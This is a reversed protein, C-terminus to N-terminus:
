LKVTKLAEIVKTRHIEWDMNIPITQGSERWLEEFDILGEMDSLESELSENLEKYKALEDESDSIEDSLDGKEKEVEEAVKNFFEQFDDSDQLIFEWEAPADSLALEAQVKKKCNIEFENDHIAEHEYREILDKLENILNM